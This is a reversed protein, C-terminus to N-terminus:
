FISSLTVSITSQFSNNDIQLYKLESINSVILNSINGFSSDLIYICQVHPYDDLQLYLKKDKNRKENFVGRNVIISTWSKYNLLDIDDDTYIVLPNNGITDNSAQNIYTVIQNFLVISDLSCITHFSISDDYKIHNSHLRLFVKGGHIYKGNVFPVDKYYM